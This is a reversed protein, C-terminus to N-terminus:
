AGRFIKDLVRVAARFIYDKAQQERPLDAFPVMCPHELKVPDKVPGYVWGEDLKHQMWAVHSAEPGLDERLHLRVGERASQKQWEPAEEWAPQSDDGLAQCYGRNIEHAVCAIAEVVILDHVLTRATAAQDPTLTGANM